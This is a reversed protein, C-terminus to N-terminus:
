LRHNHLFIVGDQTNAVYLVKYKFLKYFFFFNNDNKDYNDNDNNTDNNNKSENNNINNNMRIKTIMM